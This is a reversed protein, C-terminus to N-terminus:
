DGDADVYSISVNLAQMMDVKLLVVNKQLEDYAGLVTLLDSEIQTALDDNLNNEIAAIALDFQANIAESLLQDGRRTNLEDLYFKIGPGVASGDPNNGNFFAKTSQLAEQLLPKSLTRAYYAEVNAAIPNSSFVGAPIGVKGSRLHKEYHFMFSNLTIDFSANASSGDNAVYTARYGNEWGDLVTQALTQMRKAVENLYESYAPAKTDSTYANLIDSDTAGLGYVLYDMAAFGQRDIQSPLELNYSGKDINGMVGEQDLPYINIQNTLRVEAAPGIEFMAVTQWTKWANVLQGRLASLSSDNPDNTFAATVLALDNMDAVFAQYGPVIIDDAWHTLIAARDVNDTPTEVQNPDECAILSTFILCIFLLRYTWNM